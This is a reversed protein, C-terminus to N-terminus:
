DGAPMAAAPETVPAGVMERVRERPLRSRYAGAHVAVSVALTLLAGVGLGFAGRGGGYSGLYSILALSALWPVLWAGARYDLGKRPVRGTVQGVALLAVGLLISAFDHGARSGHSEPQTRFAM